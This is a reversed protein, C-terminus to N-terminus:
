AIFNKQLKKKIIIILNAALPLLTTSKNQNDFIKLSLEGLGPSPRHPLCDISTQRDRERGGEMWGEGVGRRKEKGEQKRQFYIFHYNQSLFLFKIRGKLDTIKLLFSKFVANLFIQYYRMRYNSQVKINKNTSM